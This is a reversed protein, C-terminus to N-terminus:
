EQFDGGDEDLPLYKLALLHSSAMPCSHHPYNAALVAAPLGPCWLHTQPLHVYPTQLTQFSPTESTFGSSCSSCYTPNKKVCSLDEKCYFAQM